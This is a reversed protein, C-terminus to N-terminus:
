KIGKNHLNALEAEATALKVAPDVIQDPFKAQMTEPDLRWMTIRDQILEIARRQRDQKMFTTM